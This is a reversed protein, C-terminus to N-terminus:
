SSSQKRRGGADGDRPLAASFFSDAARRRLWRQWGYSVGDEFEDKSLRWLSTGVTSFPNAAPRQMLSEALTTSALIWEM